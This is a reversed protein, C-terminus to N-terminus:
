IHILSLESGLLVELFQLQPLYHALVLLVVTMPTPLVLGIPGWLATWFMAALILSLMSMGTSTGYLWPEVLNNSILELTAILAVTWLVMNWGPDVGLALTLPFIAGIMPGVYPVFRLVAALLGWVLAGPVGIFLLGLAMPIGYTANVLLQM